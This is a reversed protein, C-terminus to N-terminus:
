QYDKLLNDFIREIVNVVVSNGAQKYLQTNSLGTAQAKNFDEDDFGMLRWCERPTLKRVRFDTSKYISCRPVTKLTCMVDKYGLDRRNKVFNESSTDDFLGIQLKNVDSIRNNIDNAKLKTLREKSLYYREEVNDELMDELPIMDKEKEPFEYDEGDFKSVVFVRERNQPIGYDKANLVSWTSKYGLKSLREIYDDLIPKHKSTILGKVNEWVIYKPMIDKVIRLAEYVLSSNTGSGEVGGEGNGAMSFSQCPSSNWLLDIEGIEEKAKSWKSIDQPKITDEYIANYSKIPNPDIEIADIIEYNYGGGIWHKVLLVLVM